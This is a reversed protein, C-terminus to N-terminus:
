KRDIKDKLDEFAGEAKDIASDLKGKLKGKNEQREGERKTEDDGTVAGVAQKARGEIKDTTEGM